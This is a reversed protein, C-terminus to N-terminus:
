TGVCPEYDASAESVDSGDALVIRWGGVRLFSDDCGLYQAVAEWVEQAKAEEILTTSLVIVDGDATVSTVSAAHPVEGNAVIGEVFGVNAAAGRQDLVTTPTSTSATSTTTAPEATSSSPSASPSESVDSASGSCAALAGVLLAVSALRGSLPLGSAFARAGAM